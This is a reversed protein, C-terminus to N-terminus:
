QGLAKRYAEIATVGAPAEPEGDGREVEIRARRRAAETTLLGDMAAWVAAFMQASFRTAELNKTMAEAVYLAAAWDSPEFYESQGSKKLSTYWRKAVTHLTRPAQPVSVKGKAKVASTPEDVNRRRREATRKPVPGRTAVM